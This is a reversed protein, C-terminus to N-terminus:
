NYSSSSEQLILGVGREVKEKEREEGSWISTDGSWISTDGGPYLVSYRGQGVGTFVCM